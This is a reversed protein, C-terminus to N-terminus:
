RDEGVLEWSTGEPTDRVELGATTLAERIADAVRYERRARLESRLRLLADVAPSLRERPDKLGSEAASGLRVVLSRLVARAQEGEETEITDTSWASIAAELDLVAAVMGRADGAGEAQDFRLECQRAVEPLATSSSPPAAPPTAAAAPSRPLPSVTGEVLTRLEDLALETGSRIAQSKGQRRITVAGHGRVSVRGAKLDFLLATHEDIGLIAASPPLLVELQRLRREGMYCYRTDHTGGETNDYHPIVAVELGFPSLLDLGELWHPPAGVKYIEYVPLTWRGVTCAAASSFLTAGGRELRDRLATALPSGLWQRAAYSPSGPGAFAWAATRVAALGRDLDGSEEAPARLGPAVQVHLGVNASFYRRAKASVQDANEQFGYPTELLVALPRPGLAAVLEQHLTVMTPSTEGSGILALIRPAGVGTVTGAAFVGEGMSM